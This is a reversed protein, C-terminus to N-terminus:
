ELVLIAITFKENEQGNDIDSYIQVNVCLLDNKNGIHCMKCGNFSIHLLKCSLMKM